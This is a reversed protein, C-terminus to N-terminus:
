LLRAPAFSIDSIVVKAGINRLEQAVKEAFEDEVVAFVTEGIMAQSAAIAGAKVARKIGIFVKDSLLRSTKAFWLSWRMFEEICPNSYVNKVAELGYRNILGLDKGELVLKKNIPGYYGLVIKLSPDVLIREVKDYGPAGAKLVLVVGGVVLGSVTGLGTLCEIETRHAIRALEEYTLKLRLAKGLALATALASAGSTGLGGGIPVDIYQKIDVKYNKDVRRILTLALRKVIYCDCKVDNLFTNIETNDAEEIDVIVKVGKELTIGGGVAGTRNYDREVINSAFMASLGAPSFAKAIM